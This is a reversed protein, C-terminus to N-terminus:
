PSRDLRAVRAGAFVEGLKAELKETGEGV